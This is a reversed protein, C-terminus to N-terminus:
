VDKKNHATIDTSHVVRKSGWRQQSKNKKQIRSSNKGGSQEFPMRQMLRGGGEDTYLIRETTIQGERVICVHLATVVVMEVLQSVTYLQQPVLQVGTASTDYVPVV